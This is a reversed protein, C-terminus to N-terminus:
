SSVKRFLIEHNGGKFGRRYGGLLSAQFRLKASPLIQQHYFYM